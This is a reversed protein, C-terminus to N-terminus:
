LCIDLLNSQPYSWRYALAFNEQLLSLTKPFFYVAIKSAVRFGYRMFSTIEFNINNDFIQYALYTNFHVNMIQTSFNCVNWNYCWM